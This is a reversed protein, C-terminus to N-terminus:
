ETLNALKMVDNRHYLIPSNKGLRKTKKERVLGILANAKIKEVSVGYITRAQNQTIWVKYTSAKIKLVKLTRDIAIDAAVQILELERVTLTEM